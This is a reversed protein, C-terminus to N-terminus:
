KVRLPVEADNVGVDKRCSKCTSQHSRAEAGSEMKSSSLESEEKKVRKSWSVGKNYVQFIGKSREVLLQGAQGSYRGRSIDGM